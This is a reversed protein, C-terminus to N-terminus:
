KFPVGCQCGSHSVERRAHFLAPELLEACYNYYPKGFRIKYCLICVNRPRLEITSYFSGLSIVPTRNGEGAGIKICGNPHKKKHQGRPSAFGSLAPPVFVVEFHQKQVVPATQKHTLSCIRRAVFLRLCACSTPRQGHAAAFPLLSSVKGRAREM